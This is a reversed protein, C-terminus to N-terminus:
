RTHFWCVKIIQLTNIPNRHGIALTVHSRIASDLVLAMNVSTCSLKQAPLFIMSSLAEVTWVYSRHNQRSKQSSLLRGRPSRAMHLTVYGIPQTDCKFTTHVPVTRVTASTFLHSLPSSCVIVSTFAWSHPNLVINVQELAIVNSNM